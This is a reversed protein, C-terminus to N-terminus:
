AVPKFTFKTIYKPEICIAGMYKRNQLHWRAGDTEHFEAVAKETGKWNSNGCTNSPVIYITGSPTMTDDTTTLFEAGKIKTPAENDGWIVGSQFDDKLFYDSQVLTEWDKINIVVSVGKQGDPTMKSLAHATAIRGILAKIVKDVELGQPTGTVFDKKTLESDKAKIAALIKSDEKQLLAIAMTKQLTGKADLNTKKFEIDPIKHQSSIYAGTCKYPKLPGADGGNSGTDGEYGKDSSNYMSPLGDKATSAEARYFTFSEGGTAEGKECFKALGMPKQVSMAILAQTAYKQQLVENTPQAM